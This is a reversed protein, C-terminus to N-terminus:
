GFAGYFDTFCSQPDTHELEERPVPVDLQQAQLEAFQEITPGAHMAHGPLEDKSGGGFLMTM